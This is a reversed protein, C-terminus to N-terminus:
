GGRGRRQGKWPQKTRWDLSGTLLGAELVTLLDTLSRGSVFCSLEADRDNCAAKVMSGDVMLTITGPLRPEGDEWSSLSLFELVTPFLVSLECDQKPLSSGPAGPKPRAVRQLAM